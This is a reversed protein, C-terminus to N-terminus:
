SIGIRERVKKCHTCVKIRSNEGCMRSEEVNVWADRFYKTRAYITSLERRGWEEKLIHRMPPRLLM